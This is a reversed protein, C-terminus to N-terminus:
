RQEQFVSRERMEPYDRYIASVLESFTLSRVWHSLTVFYKRANGDLRQLVTNGRAQGLPSAAYFRFSDRIRTVEVMGASELEAAVDYVAGDFPGYDWPYFKFKPGGIFASLREDILFLTKQLQVPTFTSGPVAALAALITDQQDLNTAMSRASLCNARRDRVFPASGTLLFRRLASFSLM